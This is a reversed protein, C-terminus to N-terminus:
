VGGMRSRCEPGYGTEISVPDTLRRNCRRCRRSVQLEFHSCDCLRPAHGSVRSQFLDALREWQSPHGAAGRMKRWVAIRGDDRVFGFPQYDHENDPGTLLYLIRAGPAFRADEQQTRVKFTRHQGTEPNTLTYIGNHYAGHDAGDTDHDSADMMGADAGAPGTAHAHTAHMADDRGILGNHM